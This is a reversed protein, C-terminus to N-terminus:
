WMCGLELIRSYLPITQPFGPIANEQFLPTNQYKGGQIQLFLPKIKIDVTKGHFLPNMQSSVDTNQQLFPPWKWVPSSPHTGSKGTLSPAPAM